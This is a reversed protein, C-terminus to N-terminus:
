LLVGFRAFAVGGAQANLARDRGRVPQPEGTSATLNSAIGVSPRNELNFGLELGILGEYTEDASGDLKEPQRTDAIKNAIHADWKPCKGLSIPVGNCPDRFHQTDIRFRRDEAAEPANFQQPPHRWGLPMVYAMITEDYGYPPCM